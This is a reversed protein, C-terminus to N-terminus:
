KGYPQPWKSKTMHDYIMSNAGYVLTKVDYGLVYLYAAAAASGQGSYCYMVNDGTAPDFVSLNEDAKLTQPQVRVAGNIHGMGLYDAEPWYCIINYAAPNAMVTAATITRTGWASLAAEIREDLIDQANDAGTDLEPFDFEPLAPSATMVWNATGFYQDSIKGTWKDLSADVISMGWKLNYAEYGKLRLLVHAYAASQGSYCVVLIKGTEGAVVDFINAMTSNVANSLHMQNFDDAARIDVILYDDLNAQIASYDVVWGAMNNIWGEFNPDGNELYDVLTEFENIKEGGNDSESCGFFLALSLILFLYLLKKM